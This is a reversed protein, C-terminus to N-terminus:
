SLDQPCLPILRKGARQSLTELTMVAEGNKNM